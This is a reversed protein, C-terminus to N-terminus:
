GRLDAVAGDARARLLEARVDARSVSSAGTAAVPATAHDSYSILGQKKAQALEAQVQARSVTSPAPATMPYDREFSDAYASSMALASLAVAASAIIKSTKMTIEKFFLLQVEFLAPVGPLVRWELQM